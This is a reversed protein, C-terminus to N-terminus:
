VTILKIECTYYDTQEVDIRPILLRATFPPGEEHRFMVTFSRSGTTTGIFTLTYQSGPIESLARVSEVQARTLWGQDEQGELSIPRGKELGQSYIKLKGGLTRTVQQAVFSYEQEDVWVMDPNLSVGGLTISDM